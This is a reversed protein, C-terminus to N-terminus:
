SMSSRPSSPPATGSPSGPSRYMRPGDAAMRRVREATQGYTLTGRDDIFAARDPHAANVQLLHDAFNFREGPVPIHPPLTM